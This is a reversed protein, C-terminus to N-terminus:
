SSENSARCHASWCRCLTDEDCTFDQLKTVYSTRADCYDGHAVVGLRIGAVERRLRRVAAAVGRRVEALCAYMSGTTDFSFVVEVVPNGSTRAKKEAAASDESGTSTDDKTDPKRKTATAAKDTVDVEEGELKYLLKTGPLLVRNYSTSQVFIDFDPINELDVTVKKASKKPINLVTRLEEGAVLAGDAKRRALVLKYDQVTEKKTLQYFARGPSFELGEGEVFRRVPIREGVELQQYQGPEM